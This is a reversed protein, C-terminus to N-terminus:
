PVHSEIADSLGHWIYRGCLTNITIYIRFGLHMMKIIGEQLLNKILDTMSLILGGNKKLYDLTRSGM